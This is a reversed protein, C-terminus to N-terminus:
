FPVPELGRADDMIRQIADAWEWRPVARPVELLRLRYEVGFGCFEVWEAASFTHVTEAAESGTITELEQQTDPFEDDQREDGLSYNARLGRSYTLQRAGKMARTFERWLQADDATDRRERAGVTLDRLIQWSTRHGSRGEKSTALTLEGALGMKALYEAGRLPQVSVGHEISPARYVRGQETRETIRRRWAQAIWERLEQLEDADLERGLYLAVHLHPHWGNEGHTVELARVTGVVGLRDRWRKWGAGQTVRGWSRAVHKRLPKLADGEDHPLTLTALYMHGGAATHKENLERLEDARGAMIRPACVPCEWVSSCRVCGSFYARGSAAEIKLSVAPFGDANFAARSGCIAVGRAATAGQAVQRMHYRLALVGGSKKPPPSLTSAAAAQM